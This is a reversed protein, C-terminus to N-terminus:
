YLGNWYGSFNAGLNIALSLGFLFALVGLFRIASNSVSSLPKHFQPTGMIQLWSKPRVTALIGSILFFADWLCLILLNAKHSGSLYSAATLAIMGIPVILQRGKSENPSMQMTMVM